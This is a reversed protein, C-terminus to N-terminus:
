SRDTGQLYALLEEPTDFSIILPTYDPEVWGKPATYCVRARLEEITLSPDANDEGDTGWYLAEGVFKEWTGNDHLFWWAGDTAESGDILGVDNVFVMDRAQTMCAHDLCEYKIHPQMGDYTGNYEISTIEKKAPDIKYMKM